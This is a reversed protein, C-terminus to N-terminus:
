LMTGRANGNAPMGPQGSTNSPYTGFGPTPDQYNCAYRKTSDPAACSTPNADKDITTEDVGGTPSSQCGALTLLLAILATTKM